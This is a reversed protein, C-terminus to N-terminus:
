SPPQENKWESPQPNLPTQIRSLEKVIQMALCQFSHNLAEKFLLADNAGWDSFKFPEGWEDIFVTSYLVKADTVRILRIGVAMRLRLLPDIDGRKGWLGCRRVSIELVTDIGKDSLSDYVVEEDLTIPGQVELLVFPYLTEERAALLFRERMTEQFILTVLYGNLAEETEKIKDKSIGMVAGVISGIAAGIPIAALVGACGIGSCYNGAGAVFAAGVGAGHWAASGRTMPKQFRFEPQFNASVIGITGLNTRLEEPPSPQMKPTTACSLLLSLVILLMVWISKNMKNKM